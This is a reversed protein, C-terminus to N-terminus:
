IDAKSKQTEKLMRRIECHCIWGRFAGPPFFGGDVLDVGGREFVAVIIAQAVEEADEGLEVVDFGQADVNHPYTRDVLRGLYIHAVIDRVVSFYV